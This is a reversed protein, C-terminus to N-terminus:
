EDTDIVDLLNYVLDALSVGAEPSSYYPKQKINAAFSDPLKREAAYGNINLWNKVKVAKEQIETM